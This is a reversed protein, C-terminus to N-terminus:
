HELKHHNETSPTHWHLQIMGSVWPQERLDTVSWPISIDVWSRTLGLQELWTWTRQSFQWEAHIVCLNTDEFLGILFNEMAEQLARIANRQFRLDTKFDQVVERVLRSFPLKTILLETTKQYWRIEWLVVTGPKYCMPKKVGSTSATHIM